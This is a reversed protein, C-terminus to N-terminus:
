AVRSSGNSGLDEILAEAARRGSRMAGNISASEVHDGCVYLGADIRVTARAAPNLTGVPQAPLAHPIRYSRLHRWRRVETGYWGALQDLVRERLAGEPEDCGGIVSASILTAGAPAYSPSVASPVCLNNVPGEGDGDLVLTPEGVPDRDAAFYLCVTGRGAVGHPRGLLRAATPGETAVVIRSAALAEGTDLLVRGPDLAAVATNLHISTSPLAAAIQAPIAGMGEAPVSTDGEAFMRLVFHLMRSTTELDADLFVGGLWPRFFGNIMEGSMGAKQLASLTRQDERTFVDALSGACAEGRLRLVRLKDNLGGVGGFLSRLGDFPRRFPDAMRRFRGDRHVLAGPYFAQLDLADYDLVARAEPYAELLVQFGRDLRFGDVEDTRVRGGVGDGAELLRFPIGAGHLARACCLGALGAGIIVVGDTKHM